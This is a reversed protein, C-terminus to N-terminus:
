SKQMDKLQEFLKEVTGVGVRDYKALILLEMPLQGVREMQDDHMQRLLNPIGTFKEETLQISSLEETVVIYDTKFFFFLEGPRESVIRRRIKEEMIFVKLEEFFQAENKESFRKVHKCLGELSNPLESMIRGHQEAGLRILFTESKSFRQPLLFADRLFYPIDISEGKYSITRIATDGPMEETVEKEVTVAAEKEAEEQPNMAASLKQELADLKFVLEQIDYTQQKQPSPDQYEPVVIKHSGYVEVYWKVIMYVAEWCLLAESYRFKRPDHAAQNGQMRVYHLSDRIEDTLYGNAELLKVQDMLMGKRVPPLKEIEIVKQLIHEIFIRSHTLVVRPSTFISQELQKAIYALDRSIPELFCYFYDQKM